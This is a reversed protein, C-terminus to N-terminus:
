TEEGQAPAATRLLERLPKWGIVEIGLDRVHGILRPDRFTEFDAVRQRWDHAVARLEPTDAAPHAILYTLGPPLEGFVHKALALRDTAPEVLPMMRLHDFVAMGRREWAAIRPEGLLSLWGPERTLLAPVGHEFGLEVYDDAVEDALAACMHPDVHTVDIGAAIARDVQAAMEIRVADRDIAGWCDQNRHFCGEGDVMGSAPDRTSIPGWRYGDWESTLTVHVGVDLDDRGRCRAAVEALWPCPAMVSGSTTLGDDALELFADITAVCMGVDDAHVIVVRDEPGFGLERLAPNAAASTM